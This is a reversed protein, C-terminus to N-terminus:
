LRQVREVKRLDERSEQSTVLVAEATERSGIPLMTASFLVSAAKKM